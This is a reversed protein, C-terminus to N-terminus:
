IFINYGSHTEFRFWNYLEKNKQFAWKTLSLIYEIEIFALISSSLFHYTLFWVLITCQVLNFLLHPYFILWNLTCVLIPQPPDSTLTITIKHPRASYTYSTQNSQFKSSKYNHTFDTSSCIFLHLLLSSIDMCSCCYFITTVLWTIPLETETADFPKPLTTIGALQRHVVM